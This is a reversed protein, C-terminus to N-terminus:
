HRVGLDAKDGSGVILVLMEALIPIGYGEPLEVVEESSGVLGRVDVVEKVACGIRRVKRCTKCTCQATFGCIGPEDLLVCTREMDTRLIGETELDTLNPAYQM